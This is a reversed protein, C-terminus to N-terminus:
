GQVEPVPPKVESMALIEYKGVSIMVFWVVSTLSFGVTIWFGGTVPDTFIALALCGVGVLQGWSAMGYLLNMAFGNLAAASGQSLPIM